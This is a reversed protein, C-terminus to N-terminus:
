VAGILSPFHPTCSIGNCSSSSWIKLVNLLIKECASCIFFSKTFFKLHFLCHLFDEDTQLIHSHYFLQSLEQCRFAQGAQLPIVGLMNASSHQLPSFPEHEACKGWVWVLTTNGPEAESSSLTQSFLFASSSHQGAQCLPTASLNRMRSFRPAMLEQHSIGLYWTKLVGYCRLLDGPAAHNKRTHSQSNLILNM